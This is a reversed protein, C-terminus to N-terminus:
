AYRYWDQDWTIRKLKRVSNNFQRRSHMLSWNDYVMLDNEQWDHSYVTYETKMQEIIPRIFKLYDERGEIHTTFLEDAVLGWAKHKPHWNIAPRRMVSDWPTKYPAKCHISTSRLFNFTTQDLLKLGEVTDIFDTPVGIGQLEVAYLIRNPIIQSPFHTLDVHWPLSREGLLGNEEVTEVLGNQQGYIDTQRLGNYSDKKNSWVDGFVGCVNSLQANNLVQNPFVVLKRKSFISYLLEALEYTVNTLDIDHIATGFTPTLNSHRM